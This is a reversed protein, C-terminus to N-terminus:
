ELLRRPNHFYYPSLRKIANPTNTPRDCLSSSGSPVVNHFNGIGDDDYNETSAERGSFTPDQGFNCHVTWPSNNGVCFTWESAVDKLNYTNLHRGANIITGNKYAYVKGGSDDLDLLLGLIDGRNFTGLSSRRSIGGSNNYNFIMTHNRWMLLGTGKGEESGLYSDSSSIDAGKPLVGIIEGSGSVKFEAYLKGSSAYLTAPHFYGFSGRSSVGKLNGESLVASQFGHQLPDLTAFTIDSGKGVKVNGQQSSDEPQVGSYVVGEESLFYWQGNSNTFWKQGDTDWQSHYTAFMGTPAVLRGPQLFYDPPIGGILSDNGMSSASDGRKFVRGEPTVYYNTGLADNFWKRGAEDQVVHHQTFIVRPWILLQPETFKGINVGGILTGEGSDDDYRFVGGNPSAFYWNDQFDKLWRETPQDNTPSYEAFAFTPRVLLLPNQFRSPHVGGLLQSTSKGEDWSYVDGRTGVYHWKGDADTLWKKLPEDKDSHYDTFVAEPSMLLQPNDFRDASVGAFPQDANQGDVEVFISGTPTIYYTRGSIDNLWRRGLEDRDALHEKFTITPWVLLDPSHYLDPNLGGILVVGDSNSRYVGGNDTVYYRNGDIGTFWQRGAEQIEPHHQIFDTTVSFLLQPNDFRDQDVRGLLEDGANGSRYIRGDATIYYSSGNTGTLWKRNSEDRSADHQLNSSSPWVLLRPNEFISSDVTAIITDGSHESRYIGGERNIYYSTGDAATFWRRGNSDSNPHYNTFRVSLKPLLSVADLWGRDLGAAVSGDKSYAWTLTHEGPPIEFSLLQEVDGSISATEIGDIYFKLFDCDAESSVKWFFSLTAEGNVVASAWTEENNGILGSQAADGDNNYVESQNFWHANGGSSWAVFTLDVAEGLAAIETTPIQLVSLRIGGEEAWRWQSSYKGDVAIRYTTGATAHFSVKSAYNEGMNDDQAVLTLGDVSEGTYIGLITDFTTGTTNIKATGDVPATWNWWLSKGGRNRAHDPEGPERTAYVNNTIASAQAGSLVNAETFHDNAPKPEADLTMRFSGQDPRRGQWDVGDVAIYYTVGSNAQFRLQRYGQGVRALNDVTDGTYIALYSWFPSQRGNGTWTSITVQFDVGPTWKWWVSKGASRAGHLPEGTEKTAGINSGFTIAHTQSGGMLAADSFHDNAPSVENVMIIEGQIDGSRGAYGDVAIQYTAGATASFTVLSTLNGGADDDSAVRQLSGLNNGTYVALITDFESGVTNIEAQGSMQATWSFWLSKGGRNRSYHHSPEGSERSAEENNAEFVVHHKGTLVVRDAFFDNAVPHVVNLTITSTAANKGEKTASVQLEISTLNPDDPVVLNASYIADGFVLDPAEGDDLFILNGLSSAVGTVTAGTVPALDTVRAYIVSTQGGQLPTGSARVLLELDGDEGGSLAQFANVRGGTAVKGNLSDMPVVTSLLRQRLEAVSIGPYRAVLLASVGAAHPCAMSTGSYNAYASDSDATASYIEVGPAALDVSEVGYNSWSALNGHRDMAAVSIVNDLVYNSPYHPDEDANAGSNGAAAVFLVGQDQANSIADHLAQSFGGGGWSNSLINAGNAVAWDVCQVAGSTYGWGAGSLFKCAMLKVNWAVGVHPHADNARAGITGACHTGHSNDDMPDGDNNVADIGYINDVFGDNDDDVGNGAVEDENIWMQGQLDQHTYRIGTDIVAVVVNGSGTTIDWARVADIDVGSVGGNQGTNRLGWLRGDVFAGDSPTGSVTILYDPEVFDFQGTNKLAKIQGMLEEGKLVAEILDQPDGTPRGSPSKDRDEEETVNLTVVGESTIPKQDFSQSGNKITMNSRVGGVGHGASYRAIIRTPHAIQNGIIVYKEPLAPSVQVPRQSSLQPPNVPKVTSVQASRAVTKQTWKLPSKLGTTSQRSALTISQGAERNSITIDLPKAHRQSINRLKETATRLEKVGTQGSRMVLFTLVPIMVLTLIFWYKYFRNM